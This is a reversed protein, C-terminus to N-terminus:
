NVNSVTEVKAGKVGNLASLSLLVNTIYPRSHKWWSGMVRVHVKRDIAARKLADDIVPWFRSCLLLISIFVNINLGNVDPTCVHCPRLWCPTQTDKQVGLGKYLM